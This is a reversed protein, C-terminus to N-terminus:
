PQTTSPTEARAITPVRGPRVCPRPKIVSGSSASRPTSRTRNACILRTAVNIPENIHKPMPPSTSRRPLRITRVVSASSRPPTTMAIAPMSLAAMSSTSIVRVRPNPCLASDTTLRAIGPLHNRRRSVHAMPTNASTVLTPNM